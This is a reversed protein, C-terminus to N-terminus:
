FGLARMSVPIFPTHLVSEICFINQRGYTMWDPRGALWMEGVM